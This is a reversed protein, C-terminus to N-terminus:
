HVSEVTGEVNNPPEVEHWKHGGDELEQEEGIQLSIIICCDNARIEISSVATVKWEVKDSIAFRM